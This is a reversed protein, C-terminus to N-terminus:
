QRAQGRTRISRATVRVGGLGKRQCATQTPATTSSCKSSAQGRPKRPCQEGRSLEDDALRRIVLYDGVSAEGQGDMRVIVCPIDEGANAKAQRLWELPRFDRRAKVEIAHGDVHKIDRGPESGFTSVAHPWGREALWKAIVVQTRRGRAVRADTM